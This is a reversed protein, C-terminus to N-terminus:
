SRAAITLTSVCRFFSRRPSSSPPSSYHAPLEAQLAADLRIRHVAASSILQTSRYFFDQARQALRPALNEDIDQHVVQANTIDGGTAADGPLPHTSFERRRDASQPM